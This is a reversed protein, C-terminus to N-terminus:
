IKHEQKKEQTDIEGIQSKILNDVITDKNGIDSKYIKLANNVAEKEDMNIAARESTIKEELKRNEEVQGYDSVRIVKKM